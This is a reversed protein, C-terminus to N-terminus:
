KYSSIESRTLSQIVGQLRGANLLVFNYPISFLFFPKKSKRILFGIFALLYFLMQLIFVLLFFIGKYLLVFSLMLVFLMYFPTLHRSTKHFFISFFLSPMKFPNIKLLKHLVDRFARSTKRVRALHAAKIETEINDYVKASPDYKVKYGKLKVNITMIRDIDETLKIPEYIEKRIAIAAGTGFALVGLKSELRRILEEYEWYLGASRSISTKKVNRYHIRGSVCGVAPDTFHGIMKKLVDPEFHTESDTFVIIDGQCKQVAQNHVFARGRQPKITILSIRSDTSAKQMVIQDTKDTSGDSAVIIEILNGPYDQQLLNDIRLAIVQEENHAAIVFSVATKKQLALKRKKSRPFQSLLILILPYLFWTGTLLSFNIWFFLIAFFEFAAM